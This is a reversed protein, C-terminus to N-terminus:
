LTITLFSLVTTAKMECGFFLYVPTKVGYSSILAQIINLYEQLFELGRLGMLQRSVTRFTVESMKIRRKVHLFVVKVPM